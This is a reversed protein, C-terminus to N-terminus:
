ANIKINKITTENKFVFMNIIILYCKRQKVILIYNYLVTTSNEIQKYWSKVDYLSYNM